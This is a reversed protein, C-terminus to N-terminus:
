SIRWAICRTRQVSAAGVFSRRRVEVILSVNSGDGTVRRIWGVPVAADPARARLSFLEVEVESGTPGELLRVEQVPVGSLSRVIAEVHIMYEQGAVTPVAYVSHEQWTQSTSEAPIVNQADYLQTGFDGGGGAPDTWETSCEDDSVALVQGATGGSPGSLQGNLRLRGIEPGSYPGCDSM